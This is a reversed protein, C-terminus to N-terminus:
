RTAYVTGDRLEHISERTSPSGVETYRTGDRLEHITVRRHSKRSRRLGRSSLISNERSGSEFSGAESIAVSGPSLERGMSDREIAAQLESDALMHTGIETYWDALESAHDEEESGYEVPPGNMQAPGTEKGTGTGSGDFVAWSSSEVSVLMISHDYTRVKFDRLLIANGPEIIPMVSKRRRFIQAQLTTGAMSPDTLQLTIFFDKSASAAKAIPTTEHVISITDVLANYHDILTALPAFYSLKSRLGPAHRDPARPGTILVKPPEPISKETTAEPTKPNNDSEDEELDPNVAPDGDEDERLSEAVISSDPAPPLSINFRTPSAPIDVLPASPANHVTVSEVAAEQTPDPTLLQHGATNSLPEDQDIQGDDELEHQLEETRLEPSQPEKNNAIQPTSEVFSSPPPTNRGDVGDMGYHNSERNDQSLPGPHVSVQKDEAEAVDADSDLDIVSGPGEVTEFNGDLESEADAESYVEIEGEAEAEAEESGPEEIENPGQKSQIFAERTSQQVIHHDQALIDVSSEDDNLDSDHVRDDQNFDQDEGGESEASEMDDYTAEDEVASWEEESAMRALSSLTREAPSSLGPRRGQDVPRSPRPAVPQDSALEDESDSDLVIVEHTPQTRPLSPVEFDEEEYEEEKEEEDYEGAFIRDDDDYHLNHTEDESDSEALVDDDADSEAESRDESSGLQGMFHDSEEDSAASSSKAQSEIDQLAHEEPEDESLDIAAASHTDIDKLGTEETSSSAPSIDEKDHTPVVEINEDEVAPYSEYGMTHGQPEGAVRTEAVEDVDELEVHPATRESVSPLQSAAFGFLEMPDPLIDANAELLQDQEPLSTATQHVAFDEQNLDMGRENRENEMSETARSLAQAQSSVLSDSMGQNTADINVDVSLSQADEAQPIAHFPSFYGQSNNQNSSIPSPIPLGPSPIPRLQPTDTPLHMAPTPSTNESLGGISTNWLNSSSQTSRSFVGGSFHLSPKVFVSSHDIVSDKNTAPKESMSIGLNSHEKGTQMDTVSEIDQELDMNEDLAKDWDVTGERERPSEPEDVIRWEERRLSYRPRKRGKGQVFGDEETFPDYASDLTEGYSSRASRLFAPSGWAGAGNAVFADDPNMSIMRPTSPPPPETEHPPPPKEDIVVIFQSRSSEIQSARM